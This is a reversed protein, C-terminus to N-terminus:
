LELILTSVIFKQSRVLALFIVQSRSLDQILMAAVRGLMSTDMEFPFM